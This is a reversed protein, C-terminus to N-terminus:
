SRFSILRGQKDRVYTPEGSQQKSPSSSAVQTPASQQGGGQPAGPQDENRAEGKAGGKYANFDPPTVAVPQPASTAPIKADVAAVKAGGQGSLAPVAETSAAVKTAGAQEAYATVKGELRDMTQQLTLPESAKGKNFFLNPNAKAASAFVDAGKANPNKALADLFNHAGTPGMFYGLYTEGLSPDRGLKKRLSAQISKIYRSAVIASKSPDTRDSSTYGLDPYVKQTLYTWTPATFQFLGVASSSSANAGASFSSESGALAYLTRYDVGESKATNRLVQDIDATPLALDKNLKKPPTPMNSGSLQYGKSIQEETPGVVKPTAPKPEPVPDIKPEAKPTPLPVPTAAVRPKGDATDKANPDFEEGKKGLQEAVDDLRTDRDTDGFIDGIEDVYEKLNPNAVYWAILAATAAGVGLVGMGPINWLTVGNDEAVQRPESARTGVVGYIFDDLKLSHLLQASTSVTTM